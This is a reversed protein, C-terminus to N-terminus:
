SISVHSSNLRTSKRDTSPDAPTPDATQYAGVTTPFGGLAVGAVYAAGSSDVAIGDGGAGDSGGLFTSYELASGSPNVKSVFAALDSSRRTPFSYVGRHP